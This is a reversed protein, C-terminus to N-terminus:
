APWPTSSAPLIKRHARNHEENWAPLEAQGSEQRHPIVLGTSRYGGDAIVTTSGVVAKARVAGM